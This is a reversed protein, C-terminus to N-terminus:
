LRILPDKYNSLWVDGEFDASPNDLNFMINSPDLGIATDGAYSYLEFTKILTGPTHGPFAEIAAPQVTIELNCRIKKILSDAPLGGVVKDTLDSALPMKQKGLYQSYSIGHTINATATILNLGETLNVTKTVSQTEYEVAVCV